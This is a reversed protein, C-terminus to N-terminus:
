DYYLLFFLLAIALIGLSTYELLIKPSLTKNILHQRIGWAVFVSALVLVISLRLIKQQTAISYAMAGIAMIIGLQLIDKM